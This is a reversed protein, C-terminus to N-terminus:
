VLNLSHFDCYYNLNEIFINWSVHEDDDDDDDDDDNLQKSNVHQCLLEFAFPLTLM